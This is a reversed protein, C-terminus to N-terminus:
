PRTHTTHQSGSPRTALTLRTCASQCPILCTSPSSTSVGQRVTRHPTTHHPTTHMTLRLVDCWLWAQWTKNLVRAGDVYRKRKRRQSSHQNDRQCCLPIVGGLSCLAVLGCGQMCRRMVPTVWTSPLWALPPSPLSSFLIFVRSDAWQSCCCLLSPPSPHVCSSFKM